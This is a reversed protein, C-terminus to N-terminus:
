IGYVRLNRRREKPNDIYGYLYITCANKDENHFMVISYVDHIINRISQRNDYIIFSLYKQTDWERQIFNWDYKNTRWGTTSDEFIELVDVSNQPWAPPM